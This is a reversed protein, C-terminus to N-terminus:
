TLTVGDDDDYTTDSMSITFVISFVIFNYFTFYTCLTKTTQATGICRSLTAQDISCRIMIILCKMILQPFTMSDNIQGLSTGSTTTTAGTTAHILWQNICLKNLIDHEDIFKCNPACFTRWITTTTKATAENKDAQNNHNNKNNNYNRQKMLKNHITKKLQSPATM